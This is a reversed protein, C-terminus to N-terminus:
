QINNLTQNKSLDNMPKGSGFAEGDSENLNNLSVVNFIALKSAGSSKPPSAVNDKANGGNASLNTESKSLVAHMGNSPSLAASAGIPETM